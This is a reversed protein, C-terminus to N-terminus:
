RRAIENVRVTVVSDSHILTVSSSSIYLLHFARGVAIPSANRISKFLYKIVLLEALRSYFHIYHGYELSSSISHLTATAHPARM